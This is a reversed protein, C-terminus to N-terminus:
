ELVKGVPFHKNIRLCSKCDVLTVKVTVSVVTRPELDPHLMTVHRERASAGTWDPEALPLKTPDDLLDTTGRSWSAEGWDLGPLERRRQADGRCDIRRQHSPPAERHIEERGGNGTHCCLRHWGGLACHHHLSRAASPKQGFRGVEPCASHILGRYSKFTVNSPNILTKMKEATQHGFVFPVLPDADGHCQLVHM